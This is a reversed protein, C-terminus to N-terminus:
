LATDLPKKMLALVDEIRPRPVVNVFRSDILERELALELVQDFMPDGTRNEFPVVLVWDRAAFPRARGLAPSSSLSALGGVVLAALTLAVAAFTWTGGTIRRVGDSHLD